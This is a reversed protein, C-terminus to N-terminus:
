SKRPTLHFRAKPTRLCEDGIEARQLVRGGATIADIHHLSFFDIVEFCLGGPPLAIIARKPGSLDNEFDIGYSILMQDNDPNSWAAPQRTAYEFAAVSARYAQYKHYIANGMSGVIAAMFAVISLNKFTM